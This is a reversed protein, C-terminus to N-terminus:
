NASVYTSCRHQPVPLSEIIHRQDDVNRSPEVRALSRPRAERLLLPVLQLFRTRKLPADLCTKSSVRLHFSLSQLNCTHTDRQGDHAGGRTCTPRTPQNLEARSHIITRRISDKTRPLHELVYWTNQISTYVRPRGPM